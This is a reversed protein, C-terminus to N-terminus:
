NEKIRTTLFDLINPGVILLLRTKTNRSEIALHITVAVVRKTEYDELRGERTKIFNLLNFAPFTAITPTTPIFYTKLFQTISNLYASCTITVLEKLADKELTSPFLLPNAEEGLTVQVLEIADQKTMLFIMTGRADGYIDMHGVIITAGKGGLSGAAEDIRLMEAEPAAITIEEGTLQGIAKSLHGVAINSIEKVADITLSDIEEEM